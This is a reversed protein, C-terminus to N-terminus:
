PQLVVRYCHPPPSSQISPATVPWTTSPGTATRVDLVLWSDPASLDIQLLDLTALGAPLTGSDTFVPPGSPLGGSAPSISLTIDGALDTGPSGNDMEVVFGEVTGGDPLPFTQGMANATAVVTGSGTAGVSPNAAAYEAPDQFSVRIQASLLSPVLCSLIFFLRM